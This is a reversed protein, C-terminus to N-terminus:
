ASHLGDDRSVQRRPFRSRREKGHECPLPVHPMSHAIYLFFPRARNAKIFAIAEDTYRRALTTQGAPREIVDLNRMLPVNWYEIRPDMMRRRREAAPLSGGTWDMDNSYPIGFYSDFDM